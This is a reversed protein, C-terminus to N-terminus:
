KTDNSTERLKSLRKEAEDMLQTVLDSNDTLFRLILGDLVLNTYLKKEFDWQNLDQAKCFEKITETIIHPVELSVPTEEKEGIWLGPGIDVIGKAVGYIMEREVKSYGLPNRMKEFLQDIPNM